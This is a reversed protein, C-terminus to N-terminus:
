RLPARAFGPGGRALCRSQRPPDSCSRASSAGSALDCGGDIITAHVKKGNLTGNIVARKDSAVIMPCM